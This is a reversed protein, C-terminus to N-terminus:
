GSTPRLYGGLHHPHVILPVGLKSAFGRMTGLTTESPLGFIEFGATEIYEYAKAAREDVGELHRDMADADPFAHVIHVETGDENTYAQFVVTGPKDHEIMPVTERFLDKLSALQGEKVRSHSIFVIPEPM